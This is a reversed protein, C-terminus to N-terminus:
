SQFSASSHFGTQNAEDTMDVVLGRQNKKEKTPSKQQPPKQSIISDLQLQKEEDKPVRYYRKKTHTTPTCSGTEICVCVRGM